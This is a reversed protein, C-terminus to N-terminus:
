SAYIKHLELMIGDLTWGDIEELKKTIVIERLKGTMINGESLTVSIPQNINFSIM